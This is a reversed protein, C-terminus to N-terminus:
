VLVEDAVRTASFLDSAVPIPALSDNARSKVAGQDAANIRGDGTVDAFISYSAGGTPSNPNNTTRNVRAKVFGQDAANVRGLADRSADGQLVNITQQFASGGPGGGAVGLRVRDGDSGGGPQNGLPRDLTLVFTRDDLATVNTVNYDSRVGDLTIGGTTPIGSGSVAGSYRLVIQDVGLWPVTDANTPSSAVKFGYATNGLGQAQLYEKFTVNAPNADDGEWTSNRVYVESVTPAQPEVFALGAMHMGLKGFSTVEGTTPNIRVLERAFPDGAELGEAKAIGLLMTPDDPNEVLALVGQVANFSPWSLLVPDGVKQGTAPDITWLENSDKESALLKRQGDITFFTIGKLDEEATPTGAEPQGVFTSVGTPTLKFIGHEDAGYFLHQTSSWALGRLGHYENPGRVRQDDGIQDDARYTTPLVWAPRPAPRGYQQSNANFIWNETFAPSNLDVTHMAQNDRFGVRAPNNSWTESGGVRYLLGDEPNFGISQTDPLPVFSLIKTTPDPEFDGILENGAPTTIRVNDLYFRMPGQVAPDNGGQTTIWIRADTNAPDALATAFPVGNLSVATAWQDLHWTMHHTGDIGNWQGSRGTDDEGAGTSIHKQFWESGVQVSIENGQAFGTYSQDPDGPPGVSGGNLETGIMTLDYTFATAGAKLQNIVNPTRAGWFGGQPLAIRLSGTGNTVGLLEGPTLVATNPPGGQGEFGEVSGGKGPKLLNIEFLTEDEYGEVGQNGSIGVLMAAFLRRDELKELASTCRGRSTRRSGEPRHSM